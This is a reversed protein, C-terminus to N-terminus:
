ASSIGALKIIAVDQYGSKFDYDPHFMVDEIDHVQESQTPNVNSSGCIVTFEKIQAPNM